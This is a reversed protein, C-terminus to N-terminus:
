SARRQRTSLAQAALCQSVVGHDSFPLQRKGLLQYNEHGKGAVLVIDNATAETIALQIASHRDEVIRARNPHRMGGLIDKVIRRPEENRPNDNTVIIQDACREAIAGMLPRKGPDREGGCGFVCWLRGSGHARLAQLAHELAQPTHAYDVVVLPQLGDGGFREMRGTVTAVQSLRRVATAFPMDLVLLTALAALLNHANFRGLLPSTLVGDGWTSRVQMSFGQPSLALAEGWVWAPSGSQPREGLGYGVVNATVTNQLHRGFPDDLNLVAHRPQSDLFLRAKAAAYAAADGHFDLHDRGLNTLVAVAFNVGTVREQVLAHSSVEMVAHQVGQDRLAALRSQLSLADPTTHTAPVTHGYIGYGLTGFIGCAGIEEHLAQAIFHACSTKGDTGTIGVVALERTPDGYYRGALPGLKRSLQEVALLPCDPDVREAALPHPPEWAVAAAGAAHVTTLFELGHHRLGQLWPISRWGVQRSDAALGSIPRDLAPPVEAYGDLLATVM